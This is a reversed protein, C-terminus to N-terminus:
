VVSKRDGLTRKWFAHSLVAVPHGGEQENDAPNFARGSAPQVGLVEFYNGSVLSLMVLQSLDSSCVDSSWDSVLRTHRRRSSFFFFSDFAYVPDKGFYFSLLTLGCQVTKKSVADFGQVARM